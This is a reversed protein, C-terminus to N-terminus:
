IRKSGIMLKGEVDRLLQRLNRNISPTNRLHQDIQDPIGGFVRRLSSRNHNGCLRLTFRNFDRDRILAAADGFCITRHNELRKELRLMLEGPAGPSAQPQRNAFAQDFPVTAFDPDGVM